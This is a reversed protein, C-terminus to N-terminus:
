WSYISRPMEGLDEVQGRVFHSGSSTSGSGSKGTETALHPELRQPARSSRRMLRQHELAGEGFRQRSLESVSAAGPPGTVGSSPTRSLQTQAGESDVSQTLLDKEVRHGWRGSSPTDISLYSIFACERAFQTNFEEEEATTAMGGQQRKKKRKPCQGVYHGMEDCAFCRV